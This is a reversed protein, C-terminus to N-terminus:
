VCFVFMKLFTRFYLGRNICECYHFFCRNRVVFEHQNFQFSIREKWKGKYLYMMGQSVLNFCINNYNYLVQKVCAGSISNSLNSHRFGCSSFSGNKGFMCYKFFYKTHTGIENRLFFTKLNKELRSKMNQTLFVCLNKTTQIKCKFYNFTRNIFLGGVLGWKAKTKLVSASNYFFIL